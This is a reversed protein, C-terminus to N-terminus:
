GETSRVVDGVDIVLKRRGDGILVTIEDSPDLAEAQAILALEAMIRRIEAQFFERSVLGEAARMVFEFQRADLEVVLPDSEPSAPRLLVHVRRDTWDVAEQLDPQSDGILAWWESQRLLDIQSSRVEKAVVSADGRHSSFAPDVVLFTGQGPRRRAGQIAELGVLLSDRADVKEVPARDREVLLEFEDYHLFGLRQAFSVWGDSEVAADFYSRRRLFRVFSRHRDAEVKRTGHTRPTPVSDEAVPPLFRGIEEGSDGVLTDDVPRLAVLGPDLKAVGRFVALRERESPHLRAGFAAEHFLYEYQWTTTPRRELRSHVDKCNLGGTLTHALFILLERITVVSGSQEAVRLLVEMGRRRSAGRGTEAESALLRRNEAIPCLPKADCRDCISWKRQDMVWTNLLQSVLSGGDPAAVSQHNMDVVHVRGDASTQGLALVSSLAARIPELDPGSQAVATRLRGENACVISVVRDDELLRALRASGESESFDSLDKIIRLGRGSGLQALDAEGVGRERIIDKVEGAVGLDQLLQRCLHTKGHGADGTLIVMRTSADDIVQGVYDHARTKLEDSPKTDSKEALLQSGSGGSPQFARLREVHANIEFAM